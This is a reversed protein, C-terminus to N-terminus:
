EGIAMSNVEIVFPSTQKTSYNNIYEVDDNISDTAEMTTTSIDNTNSCYVTTNNDWWNNKKSSSGDITISPNSTTTTWYYPRYNGDKYGENYAEELLEELQKKTLEINGNVNPYFIKVKM